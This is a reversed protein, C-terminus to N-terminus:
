EAAEQRPSPDGARGSRIALRASKVQAHALGDRLDLAWGRDGLGLSPGLIKRHGRGTTPVPQSKTMPVSAHVAM